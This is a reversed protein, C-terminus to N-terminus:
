SEGPRDLGFGMSRLEPGLNERGKHPKSGGFLFAMRDSWGRTTSIPKAGRPVEVANIAEAWARLDADAADLAVDTMLPDYREQHLIASLPMRRRPLPDDAPWGLTMGFVVFSTSPLGLLAALERPHNRAAGIMCIGLGESEAALALNQGVLTADIAAELFVELTDARMRTGQRECARGVRSLDACIALFVPAQRIHDQDSCLTAIASRREVDRVAVVTAAQIFSSTSACRACDVLAALQSDSVADPRYKRRSRHQAMTEIVSNQAALSGQAAMVDAPTDLDRTIWSDAVEVIGVRTPDRRIVDRLSGIESHEIEGLVSRDLLLPHGVRARCRPLVISAERELIARVTDPAVMAHDIPFIMARQEVLHPLTARLSEIMSSTECEVVAGDFDPIPLSGARRAIVVRAIGAERLTTSVREIASQDGLRVFAKDAGLREGRGAALVVAAM